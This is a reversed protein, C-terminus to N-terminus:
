RPGKLVMVAIGADRFSRLLSAISHFLMQNEYWTKRYVGRFIDMHPHHVKLRKLNQYLLTFAQISRAELHDIDPTRKGRM